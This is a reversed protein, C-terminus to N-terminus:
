RFWRRKRRVASLLSAAPAAPASVLDIVLSSQPTLDRPSALEVVLGGVGGSVGYVDSIQSSPVFNSADATPFTSPKAPALGAELAGTDLINSRPSGYGDQTAAAPAAAPVGYEDAIPSTPAPAPAPASYTPAAPAVASDDLSSGAASLPSGAPSGYDDQPAPAPGSYAPAPAPALPGAPSSYDDQSTTMVGAVQSGSSVPAAAPSGYDDQGTPAPVLPAAPSGYDDQQSSAAAGLGVPCKKCWYVPKCAPVCKEQLQTTCRPAPACQQRPLPRCQQRQQQVAIQRCAAAGVSCM